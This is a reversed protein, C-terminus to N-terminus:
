TTALEADLKALAEELKKQAWEASMGAEIAQKATEWASQKQRAIREETSEIRKTM